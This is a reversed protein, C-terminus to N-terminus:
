PPGRPHRWPTRSLRCPRRLVRTRRPRTLVRWPARKSAGRLSALSVFLRPLLGPCLPTWTLAIVVAVSQAARDSRLPGFVRWCSPLVLPLPVFYPCRGHRLPPSASLSSLFAHHMLSHLAFYSPLHRPCIVIALFPACPPVLGHLLRCLASGNYAAFRWTRDPATARLSWFSPHSYYHICRCRGQLLSPCSVAAGSPAHISGPCPTLCSVLWILLALLEVPSFATQWCLASLVTLLSLSCPPARPGLQPRPAGFYAWLCSIRSHCSHPAPLLRRASLRACPCVAGSRLAAHHSLPPSAVARTGHTASPSPTGRIRRDISHLGLGQRRSVHGASRCSLLSWSSPPLCLPPAGQSVAQRPIWGGTGSVCPAATPLRHALM